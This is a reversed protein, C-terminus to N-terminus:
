MLRSDPAPVHGVGRLHQQLMVEFRELQRRELALVVLEGPLAGRFADIVHAIEMTEGLELQDIALAAHDLAADLGGVEGHDLAEIGEVELGDGREVLRQHQLEGAALVDVAALVHDGEAVAARM